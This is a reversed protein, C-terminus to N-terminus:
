RSGMRQLVAVIREPVGRIIDHSEASMKNAQKPHYEITRLAADLNAVWRDPLSLDEETGVAQATNQGSQGKPEWGENKSTTVSVQQGRKNAEDCATAFAPRQEPSVGAYRGWATKRRFVEPQSLGVEESLTRQTKGTELEESILRASEWRLDNAEGDAETAEKELRIIESIRDM